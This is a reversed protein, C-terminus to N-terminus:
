TIPRIGSVAQSDLEGLMHRLQGYPKPRLMQGMPPKLRDIQHLYDLCGVVSHGGVLDILAVPVGGFGHIHAGTDQSFRAM